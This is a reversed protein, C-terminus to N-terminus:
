ASDRRRPKADPMKIDGPVDAATWVGSSSAALRTQIPTGEFAVSMGCVGRLVRSVVSAPFSYVVARKRDQVHIVLQKGLAPPEETAIALGGGSANRLTGRVFREGVGFEVTLPESLLTYPDREDLPPVALPLQQRLRQLRADDQSTGVPQRKDASSLLVRYEFIRQLKDAM